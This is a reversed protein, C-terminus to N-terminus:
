NEVKETEETNFHDKLNEKAKDTLTYYWLGDIRKRRLIKNWRQHKEESKEPYKGTSHQQAFWSIPNWRDNTELFEKVEKEMGEKYEAKIEKTSFALNPNEVSIKAITYFIREPNERHKRVATRKSLNEGKELDKKVAKWNVQDKYPSIEKDVDLGESERVRKIHEERWEEDNRYRKRRYERQKKRYEERNQERREKDYAYYQYQGRTIDLKEIIESTTWDDSDRLEKIKQITEHDLSKKKKQNPNIKVTEIDFQGCVWELASDGKEYIIVKKIKSPQYDAELMKEGALVQGIVPRNLKEEVEILEVEENIIDRFAQDGNGAFNVQETDKEPILIGDISRHSHEGEWEKKGKSWAIGVETYLKGGKKEHYERLLQDESM